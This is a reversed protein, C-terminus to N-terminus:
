RYKESIRMSGAFGAHASRSRKTRELPCAAGASYAASARRPYKGTDSSAFRRLISEKRCPCGSIFCIGPTSIDEPESPCPIEAAQPM